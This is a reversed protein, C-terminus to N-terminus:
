SPENKGEKATTKQWPWRFQLPARERVTNITLYIGIVLLLVNPTWMGILPSVRNRDAMEEGGILFIYYVLFFGFGMCIAMMFGGKRTLTGLPAGVLVFLICAVPLSFKKHIEVWYKNHNKQYNQILRYENNIQRELSKLRREKRRQEAPVLSTDNLVTTRYDEMVSEAAALSPPVLSDGIVKKISRGIREKVRESRQKYNAQKDLMMPITMERDSRNSTDRRALMLDDAPIIIKHREFNIRRYNSYDDLKLEHIEGDYLMLIIADDLTKLEGTKSYISTQIEKNEKSFIRVDEMLGDNDQRIIMSYDPLNNIYHGPEIDLGPRKKHIDGQLLRAYFNMEPLIYNNFYTLSLCVFLGFLLAPRLILSFSIGSARMANIENDESLRGFTMLTAILVAMPVALALIWALNLFLYELITFINLGKGLFRDIARLFFNIFLMLVIVMLSYIFPLMLEKIIYRSVLRM